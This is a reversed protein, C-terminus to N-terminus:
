VFAPKGTREDFTNGKARNRAPTLYQLNWPVHLGSVTEGQLPVVHDVEKNEPCQQYFDKLQQTHQESMISGARLKIVRRRAQYEAHQPLHSQLYERNYAQRQPGRKARSRATTQKLADPNNTRWKLDYASKLAKPAQTNRVYHCACCNGSSVFRTTHGATNCPNGEYVLKDAAKAEARNVAAMKRQLKLQMQQIDLPIGSVALDNSRFRPPEHKWWSLTSPAQINVPAAQWARTTGNGRSTAPKM